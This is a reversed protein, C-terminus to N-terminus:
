AWVDVSGPSTASQAASSQLASAQSPKTASATSQIKAIQEKIAAIKGSISQIEAKGKPTTASVCTVWDNLQSRYRSIQAQLGAASGTSGPITAAKARQGLNAFTPTAPLAGLTNSMIASAATVSLATM